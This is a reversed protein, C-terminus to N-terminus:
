GQPASVYGPRVPSWERSLERAREIESATMHSAADDRLRLAQARLEPVESLAAVALWTHAKVLNQIVGVGRIHLSGYALQAGPNGQRASKYFWVAAKRRDRAVGRGYYYAVGLMFEAGAHGRHTLPTFATVADAYQRREYAGMGTDFLTDGQAWAGAAFLTAFLAWYFRHPLIKM